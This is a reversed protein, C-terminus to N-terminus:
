FTEFSTFAHSLPHFHSELQDIRAFRANKRIQELFEVLREKKGQACVEVRGDPLNKAYGTLHLQDALKKVSARFFVGQVRGTFLALLETDNM